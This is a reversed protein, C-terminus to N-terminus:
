IGLYPNFICFDDRKGINHFLKMEQVSEFKVMWNWQLDSKFSSLGLAVRLDDSEM